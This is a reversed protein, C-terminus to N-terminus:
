RMEWRALAVAALLENARQPISCVSGNPYLLHSLVGGGGHFANHSELELLDPHLRV